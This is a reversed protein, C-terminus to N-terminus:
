RGALMKLVRMRAPPIARVDVATFVHLTDLDNDCVAHDTVWGGMALYMRLLEPM